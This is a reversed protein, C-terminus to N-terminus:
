TMRWQQDCQLEHRRGNQVLRRQQQMEPGTNNRRLEAETTTDSTAMGVLGADDDVTVADCGLGVGLVGDM